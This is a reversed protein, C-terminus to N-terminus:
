IFTPKLSFQDRFSFPKFTSILKIHIPKVDCQGVPIPNPIYINRVTLKRFWIFHWLFIRFSHKLPHRLIALSSPAKPNEFFIDLLNRLPFQLKAQSPEPADLANIM